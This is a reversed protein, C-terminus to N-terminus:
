LAINTGGQYLALTFVRYMNTNGAEQAGISTFAYVWRPKCSSELIEVPYFISSIYCLLFRSIQIYYLSKDFSVKLYKESMLFYCQAFTFSYHRM